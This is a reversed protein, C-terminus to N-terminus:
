PLSDFIKKMEEGQALMSRKIFAADKEAMWRYWVSPTRAGEKIAREVFGGEPLPTPELSEEALLRLIRSVTSGKYGADLALRELEGGNIWSGQRSKLYRHARHRLTLNSM